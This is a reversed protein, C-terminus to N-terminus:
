LIQERWCELRLLQMTEIHHAVARQKYCANMTGIRENDDEVLGKMLKATRCTSRRVVALIIAQFSSIQFDDKHLANPGIATMEGEKARNRSKVCTCVSGAPVRAQTTRYSNLLSM